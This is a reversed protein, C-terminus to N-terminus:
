ARIGSCGRLRALRLLLLLRAGALVHQQVVLGQRGQVDQLPGKPLAPARQQSGNVAGSAGSAPPPQSVPQAPSLHVRPDSAISHQVRM